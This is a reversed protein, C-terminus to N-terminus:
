SRPAPKSLRQQGHAPPKIRAAEALLQRAHDISAASIKEGSILRAIERVRDKDGLELIEVAVTGKASGKEILYHADAFAAVQPLHTVCIVQQGKSIQKLKRGVKEATTGSVGSDVEDFLYTRPWEGQGVIRKLSLLLRSLEGGSAVRALPRPEDRPGQTMTFEAEDFGQPGLVNGERLQIGFTVGKMNLDRLEENVRESLLPSAKQRARHLRGARDTAQTELQALTELLLVRSQDASELKQIEDEMGTLQALIESIGPGFKSQLRRIRSLREEAQDLGDESFPHRKEYEVLSYHVEELAPKASQLPELLEFLAADISKIEGARQVLRQIRNIISGDGGGLSECSEQIFEALKTASRHRRIEATLREDEGETLNLARIEDRQFILFDLRQARTRMSEDLEKLQEIVGLREQYVKAYQSKSEQLGAFHDLLELHYPRSQLQRNDHQNTMEILPSHAGTVTILPAVVERLTTLPVLQSNLYVRNKGQATVVRRVILSQDESELGLGKLREIVDPRASIDFLGQVTAQEQGTRVTEAEAKEGMLLGLSKLVISKGAGTEGSLINLGSKFSLALQHIIAFQSVKLELLM